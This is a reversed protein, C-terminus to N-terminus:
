SGFQEVLPRMKLVDFSGIAGTNRAVMNYADSLWERDCQIEFRLPPVNMAGLTVEIHIGATVPAAITWFITCFDQRWGPAIVISEKAVVQFSRISSSNSEARTVDASHVNLLVSPSSGQMPHVSVYPRQVLIPGPNHIALMFALHGEQKPPMPISMPISSFKPWLVGRPARGFLGALADHPVHVFSEGSRIYYNDLGKAVARIPGFLAKPVLTAAFGKQSAQDRWHCHRVEPHPPVSFRSTAAELLSRFAHPDALGVQQYNDSVGWVLVGGESNGFGSIAKSLNKNDEDCLKIGAGGDGSRKYDMFLQEPTRDILLQELAATGNAELRAFLEEARSVM